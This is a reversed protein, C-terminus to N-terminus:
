KQPSADILELAAAVVADVSIGEAISTKDTSLSRYPVGYPHWPMLALNHQIFLAITPLAFASGLHVISTDPTLLFDAQAISCAYDHFSSSLPLATAGSQQCISLAHAAYDASSGVVVECDRQATLAKIFAIFNDEGWWLEQRSGSINIFFRRKHQLAKPKHCYASEYRPRLDATSPDIGLARLLSATREVIHVKAKDPLPVTHSYVAANEKEFGLSAQAKVMTILMSSTTSANDLMDIVLHYDQARMRRLQRVLRLAQKELLWYNNISAHIAPLAAKNKTSLVIDIQAQPFHERLLRLCPESVLVDGIKDQRLLLIRANAPLHRIDLASASPTAKKAFSGLLTRRLLLELAKLM